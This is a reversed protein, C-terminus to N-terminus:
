TSVQPSPLQTTASTDGVAVWTSLSRSNPDLRSTFELRDCVQNLHMESQSRHLLKLDGIVAAAAASGGANGAASSSKFSSVVVSGTAPSGVSRCAPFSHKFFIYMLFRIVKM